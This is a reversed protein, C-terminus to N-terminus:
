PYQWCYFLYWTLIIHYENMPKEHTQSNFSCYIFDHSWSVEHTIKICIFYFIPHKLPNRKRLNRSNLSWKQTITLEHYSNKVNIRARSNWTIKIFRIRSDTFTQPNTVLILNRSACLLQHNVFNWSKKLTRSWRNNQLNLQARSNWFYSSRHSPKILADQLWKRTYVFLLLM